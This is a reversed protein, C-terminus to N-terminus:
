TQKRRRTQSAKGANFVDTIRSLMENMAKTLNDIATVLREEVEKMSVATAYKEAVDLKYTSLDIQAKEAKEFARDARDMTDNASEKIRSDVRWWVGALAGFIVTLGVIVNLTLTQDM